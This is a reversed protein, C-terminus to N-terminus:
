NIPIITPITPKLLADWSGFLLIGFIAALVFTGAVFALGMFTQYIKAWAEAVKKSDAGAGMFAYGALIINIVAYIGAGAILVNIFINLLQGIGGEEVPAFNQLAPPPSVQGFPNEQIQALHKM